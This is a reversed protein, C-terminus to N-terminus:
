FILHEQDKYWANFYSLFYKYNEQAHLVDDAGKGVLGLEKFVYTPPFRYYFWIEMKLRIIANSIGPIKFDFGKVGKPLKSPLPKPVNKPMKLFILEAAQEPPLSRLLLARLKPLSSKKKNGDLFNTITTRISKDKVLKKYKMVSSFPLIGRDEEDSATFNSRSLWAVNSSDTHNDDQNKVEAIRLLRKSNSTRTTPTADWLAADSAPVKSKSGTVLAIEQALVAAVLLVAHLLGM